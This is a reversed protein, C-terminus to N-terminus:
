LMSTKMTRVYQTVTKHHNLPFSLKNMQCTGLKCLQLKNLTKKLHLSLKNLQRPGQEHLQPKIFPHLPITHPAM